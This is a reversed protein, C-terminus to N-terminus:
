CSGSRLSLLLNLLQFKVIFSPSQFPSVRGHIKGLLYLSVEPMNVSIYAHISSFVDQFLSLAYRWVTPINGHEDLLFEVFPSTLFDSLYFPYIHLAEANDCYVDLADYRRPKLQSFLRERLFIDLIHNLLFDVSVGDLNHLGMPSVLKTHKMGYSFEDKM